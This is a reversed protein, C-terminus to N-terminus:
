QPNKIIKNIGGSHTLYLCGERESATSSILEYFKDLAFTHCLLSYAPNNDILALHQQNDIEMYISICCFNTLSPSVCYFFRELAESEREKHRHHCFISSISILIRSANVHFVFILTPLICHYSMIAGARCQITADFVFFFHLLFTTKRATLPFITKNRRRRRKNLKVRMWM